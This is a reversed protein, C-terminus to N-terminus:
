FLFYHLGAPRKPPQLNFFRLNRLLIKEKTTTKEPNFVVFVERIKQKNIKRQIKYSGREGVNQKTDVILVNMGPNLITKYTLQEWYSKSKHDKIVFYFEKKDNGNNEIEISLYQYKRLKALFDPDKALKLYTSEAIKQDRLFVEDM